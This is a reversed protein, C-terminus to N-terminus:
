NIQALAQSLDNIIDEADEIGVSLRVLGETIGVAELDEPAYTSHTMSGPHEILSDVDGLSVALTILEVANMLTEGAKRGGKVEFSVMGGFGSMQKKALAHQPHTTLGPYFVSKVKPHFQLYKAVKLANAQHREMRIALTKLGRVLLWANLPSIIGGMDRLISMRLNDIFEKHGVVVGAVTDGHGGIYKTASHVVIDAGLKLPQQFYPTSFTNDVVLPIGHKKAIKACEAIDILTLTPNAPTEIYILRTKEDIAKVINKCNTGDVEKVTIDWRPLTETFLQHSGGYLTDSSVVNDGNKCLAMIVGSIAAMGSGFALAAEGGELFAMEKEFAEQTPNSIRTYVYGEREGLFIEAGARASEFAFTSTQYIPKGVSGTSKDYGGSGHVCMTSIKWQDNIKHGM